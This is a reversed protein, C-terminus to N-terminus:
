DGRRVTQSGLIGMWRMSLERRPGGQAEDVHANEFLAYQYSLDVVGDARSGGTAAWEKAAACGTFCIVIALVIAVAKNVHTGGAPTTGRV